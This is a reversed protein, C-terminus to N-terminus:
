RSQDCEAAPQMCDGIQGVVSDSATVNVGSLLEDQCVVAILHKQQM